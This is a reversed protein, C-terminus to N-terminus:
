VLWGMRKSCPRYVTCVLFPKANPLKIESWLTELKSIEFEARRLCTLSKRFYFVLGGGSKNQTAAMDKRLFDYGEIAIQNDLIEPELFTECAGFIDPGNRNALLVRLEDLKPLIHQVNLNCLHTDKQCM